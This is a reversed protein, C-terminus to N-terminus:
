EVCFTYEISKTQSMFNGYFNVRRSSLFVNKGIGTSMMRHCHEVHRRSLGAAQSVDWQSRIVFLFIVLAYASGSRCHNYRLGNIGASARLYNNFRNFKFQSREAINRLWSSPTLTGSGLGSSGHHTRIAWMETSSNILNELHTFNEGFNLGCQRRQSKKQGGFDAFISSTQARM